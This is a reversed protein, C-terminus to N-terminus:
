SLILKYIILSILAGLMVGSYVEVAKHGLVEKLKMNYIPDDFDVDVNGSKKIDLLLKKTVEIHRGAYYRVNMADYSVILSFAACTAFLVTNFGSHFGVALSLASVFSTHSSPFGGSAWFYRLDFKGKRFYYYFPKILQALLNAIIAAVLPMYKYDEYNTM